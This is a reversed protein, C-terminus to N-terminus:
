GKAFYAKIAERYVTQGPQLTKEFAARLEPNRNIHSAYATAEKMRKRSLKQLESAKVKSMDPYKSVVVKDAYQKFVIEKGLTGSLGSLVSNKTLRAM